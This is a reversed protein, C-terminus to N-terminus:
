AIEGKSSASNGFARLTVSVRRGTSASAKLVEHTWSENTLFPLVVVCGDELVFDQYGKGKWPRLRFVRSEGFSITVIPAGKTLQNPTDRHKGIYHGLKGDYWNLLLGNLREDIRSRSWGWYPMLLEPVELAVNTAGTYAYDRNFAQQWRPTKVWRGGMRIDHFESPHLEWLREFGACDLCLEDPLHGIWLRHLDDLEIREFDPLGDDSWNM